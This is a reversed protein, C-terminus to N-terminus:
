DTERDIMGIYKFEGGVINSFYFEKDAPYQIDKEGFYHTDIDFKLV